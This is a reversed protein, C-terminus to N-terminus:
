SQPCLFRHIRASLCLPSARLRPRLSHRSWPRLLRSDRPRCPWARLGPSHRCAARSARGRASARDPASDRAAARGRAISTISTGLRYLTPASVPRPWGQNPADAPTAPWWFTRRAM